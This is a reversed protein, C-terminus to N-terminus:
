FLGAEGPPTATPRAKRPRGRLRLTSEFGLRGATERVGGDAGFRCVRRVAERLRTLEAETQPENVHEVWPAPLQVPGPQLWPLLPPAVREALSSWRWQERCLVILYKGKTGARGVQDEM